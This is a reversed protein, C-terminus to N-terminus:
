LGLKSLTGLAEELYGDNKALEIYHLKGRGVIGKIPALFAAYADPDGSFFHEAVEINGRFHFQWGQFASGGHIENVRPNDRALVTQENIYLLRGGQNKLIDMIKYVHPFMSNVFGPVVPARVWQDRRVILTSIFNFLGITNSNRSFYDIMEARVNCDFIVAPRGDDMILDSGLVRLTADCLYRNSVAVDPRYAQVNQAVFEIAGPRFADDDGMLWCYEGESAGVSSCLNANFGRNRHSRLYRLNLSAKQYKDAVLLTSDNSSNDSVVVEIKVSDPGVQALVTSLLFDLYECRNFTPICISILPRTVARVGPLWGVEGSSMASFDNLDNSAATEM